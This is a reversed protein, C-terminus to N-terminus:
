QKTDFVTDQVPQAAIEHEPPLNSCPVQLLQSPSTGQKGDQEEEPSVEPLIHLVIVLSAASM